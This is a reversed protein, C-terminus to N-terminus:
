HQRGLIIHVSALLVFYVCFFSQLYSWSRARQAVAVTGSYLDKHTYLLNLPKAIIWGLFFLHFNLVNPQDQQEKIPFGPNSLFCFRLWTQTDSLLQSYVLIIEQQLYWYLQKSLSCLFCSNTGFPQRTTCVILNGLSKSLNTSTCSYEVIHSDSEQFITFAWCDLFTQRCCRISNQTNKQEDQFENFSVLFPLAKDVAIASMCYINGCVLASAFKM